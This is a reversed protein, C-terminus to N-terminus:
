PCASSRVALTDGLEGLRDNLKGAIRVIEQCEDSSLVGFVDEIYRLRMTEAAEVAVAGSPTLSIRKARRDEPDPDRRVLGDRELGDIAETVTRPAYGFSSAIDISRVPQERGIHVLMKTRAYSAGQAIMLRDIVRHSRLYFDRLTDAALDYDSTSNDQPVM